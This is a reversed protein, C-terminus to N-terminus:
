VVPELQSFFDQQEEVFDQIESLVYERITEDEVSDESSMQLRKLIEKKAVPIAWHKGKLRHVKNESWIIMKRLEQEIYVSINVEVDWPKRLEMGNDVDIYKEVIRINEGWKVIVVSQIGSKKTDFVVHLHCKESEQAQANNYKEVVQIVGELRHVWTFSENIGDTLLVWGPALKEMNDRMDRLFTREDEHSDSRTSTILKFREAHWTFLKKKIDTFYWRFFDHFNVKVRERLDIKDDREPNQVWVCFNEEFIDRFGHINEVWKDRLFSGTKGFSWERIISELQGKFHEYDKLIKKLQSKRFSFNEWYKELESTVISIQESIENLRHSFYTMTSSREKWLMMELIYFEVIWITATDDWEFIESGLVSGTDRNFIFNITNQDDLLKSLEDYIDNIDFCEEEEKPKWSWIAYDTEERYWRQRLRVQLMQSLIWVAKHIHNNGHYDKKVCDMLVDQINFFLSDWVWVSIFPTTKKKQIWRERLKRLRMGNWLWKDMYLHYKWFSPAQQSLEDMICGTGDEVLWLSSDASEERDISWDLALIAKAIKSELLKKVVSIYANRVKDSAKWLRFPNLDRPVQDIQNVLDIVKQNNYLVEDLTDGQIWIDEYEKRCKIIEPDASLMDLALSKRTDLQFVSM